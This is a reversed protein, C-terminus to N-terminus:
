NTKVELYIGPHGATFKKWNNRHAFNRTYLTGLFGMSLHMGEGTIKEEKWAKVWEITAIVNEKVILNLDRLPVKSWGEKKSTKYFVNEKLLDKDPMGDKITYLHIRFIVSDYESSAIHFNLSKLLAPKKKIKILTGRDGATYELNTHLDKSTTRTYGYKRDKSFRSALVTANPLAYIEKILSINLIEEKESYEIPIVKKQYGLYSIVLTADNELNEIKLSFAGKENTLCGINKGVVGVQVFELPEGTEEEIVVGNITQGFLGISFNLNFFLVAILFLKKTIM